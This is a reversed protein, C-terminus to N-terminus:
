TDDTAKMFNKMKELDKELGKEIGSAVDVAYPNFKRIKKAVNEPNLGGSLFSKSLIEQGLESVLSEEIEKGTGGFEKSSYKDLLIFETVKLFDLCDQKNHGKNNSGIRLAKIVNLENWNKCFELNEDGHLQITDLSTERAISDVEQRSSNVFVGVFSISPPLRRIILKAETPEIYRKSKKYFNFGLYDVGLDLCHKADKYNTIGCYKVKTNM